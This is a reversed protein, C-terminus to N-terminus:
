ETYNYQNVQSVAYNNKPYNLPVQNYVQSKYMTPPYNPPYNSPYNVQYGPYQPQNFYPSQGYGYMQQQQSPPMRLSVQSKFLDSNPKM